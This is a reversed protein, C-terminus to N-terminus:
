LTFNVHNRLSNETQVMEVLSEMSGGIKFEGLPENEGTMLFPFPRGGARSRQARKHMPTMGNQITPLVTQSCTTRLPGPPQSGLPPQLPAAGRAKSFKTNPLRLIPLKLLWKRLFFQKINM